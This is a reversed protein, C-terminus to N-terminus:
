LQVEGGPSGDGAILEEEVYAALDIIAAEGLTEHGPMETGEIGYRIARALGDRLPVAGAGWSVLWPAGKGLDMAPRDGFAAALPGDGRGAAGHCGTCYTAFLTRGRAAVGSGGAVPAERAGEQLRPGAAGAGLSELYALLHEGRQDGPAFLHGYSPM